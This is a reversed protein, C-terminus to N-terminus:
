RWLWNWPGRMALHTGPMSPPRSSPSPLSRPTGAKPVAPKGYVPADERRTYLHWICAVLLLVDVLIAMAIGFALEDFGDDGPQQAKVVALVSFCIWAGLHM